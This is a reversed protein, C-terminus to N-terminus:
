DVKGLLKLLQASNQSMQADQLEVCKELVTEGNALAAAFAMCTALGCKGCNTRPLLKFIDLPKVDSISRYSPKIEAKREAVSNITERLWEFVEKAEDEDRLGAIGIQKPYMAFLRGDRRFRLFPPDKEYIGPGLEANLYPLLDTLDDDFEISAAVRVESPLCEPPAVALRYNKLLM